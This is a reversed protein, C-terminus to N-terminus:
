SNEGSPGGHDPFRRNPIGGLHRAGEVGIGALEALQWCASITAAVDQARVEAPLGVSFVFANHRRLFLRRAIDYNNAATIAEFTMTAGFEGDLIFGAAPRRNGM